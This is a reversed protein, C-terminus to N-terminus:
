LVSDWGSVHGSRPSIAPFRAAIVRRRTYLCIQNQNFKIPVFIFSCTNRTWVEM